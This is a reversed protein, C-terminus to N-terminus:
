APLGAAVRARGAAREVARRMLVVALHTQFAASAHVNGAPDIEGAVRTGADALAQAECRSGVLAAATADLPMPTAGANCCALRAAICTGDAGLTVRAAVGMLAFDGRRRAVELFASGSAPPLPPLEVGGLMEDDALATTYLSVFFDRVAIDREGRVSVAKMVADSALMVAPMESAPDAHALNGCLTGRNRIQAHAVHPMAEAALPARAAIEPSRLVASHRTLAGVWLVGSPRSAIGALATLPNIDILVAPQALRFNMAPVLSQGGALFRAEAGHRAKLALAEYVSSAAVYEFPPPKM